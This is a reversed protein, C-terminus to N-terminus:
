RRCNGLAFSIERVFAAVAECPDSGEAVAAAIRKVMASGIIVGDAYKGVERAMQPTSIGFGVAIPLSIAQRAREIFVALEPPLEQREGTVGTLSVAYVFGKSEAAVLRLREETSTPAILFIPDLGCAQAPHTLESATDPPLDPIILGDAGAAAADRCFKEPGYVFIPNYSGMLLIPIESDARVQKLMELVGTVTTGAALARENALQITPGDALPDSFPIGLEILDAGSEAMALILKRTTELDPDGATLFPMFATRGETKLNRFTKEIRSM